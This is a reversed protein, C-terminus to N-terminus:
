VHDGQNCVGFVPPDCAIWYPLHYLEKDLDEEPEPYNHLCVFARADSCGTLNNKLFYIM